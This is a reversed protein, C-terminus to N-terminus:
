KDTVASGLTCISMWYFHSCYYAFIIIIILETYYRSLGFRPWYLLWSYWCQCSGVSCTLEYKCM